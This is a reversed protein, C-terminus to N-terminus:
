QLAGMSFAFSATPEKNLGSIGEAVKFYASKDEVPAVLWSDMAFKLAIGDVAQFIAITNATMIAVAFGIWALAHITSSESHLLM